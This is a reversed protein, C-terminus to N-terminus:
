LLPRWFWVICPGKEYCIMVFYVQLPYRLLAGAIGTPVPDFRSVEQLSLWSPRAWTLWSRRGATQLVWSPTAHGDLERHRLCREERPRGFFGVLRRPRMRSDVGVISALPKSM